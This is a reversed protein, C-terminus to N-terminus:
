GKKPAHAPTQPMMGIGVAELRRGERVIDM